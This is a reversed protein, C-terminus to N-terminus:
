ESFLKTFNNIAKRRHSLSNKLEQPMEAFTETSSDPVFICDYGFGSNGKQQDIIKGSCIGDVYQAKEGDYYCLVTRFRASRDTQNELMKLLKKRNDASSCNEGAFRASHTGPLGGLSNVELGTDDAISPIKAIDYFGKAKKFSNEELTEGDEVINLKYNIISDASIISIASGLENFIQAFEEAKHKNNTALLIKM